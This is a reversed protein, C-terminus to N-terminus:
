RLRCRGPSRGSCRSDLALTMVSSTATDGLQGWEEDGRCNQRRPPRTSTDPTTSTPSACAPAASTCASHPRVARRSSGRSRVASRPSTSTPSGTTSSRSAVGSPPTPRPLRRAERVAGADRRRAHHHSRAAAAARRDPGRRLLLEHLRHRPSARRRRRRHRLEVHLPARDAAAAGRVPGPPEGGRGPRRLHVAQRHAGDAAAPPRRQGPRPSPHAGEGQGAPGQARRAM